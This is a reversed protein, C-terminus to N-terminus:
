EGDQPDGLAKLKAKPTDNSLFRVAGDCMGVNMGGSHESGVRGGPVNIGKLLEELTVDATPDM